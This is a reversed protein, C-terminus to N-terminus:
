CYHLSVRGNGSNSYEGKFTSVDLKYAIKKTVGLGRLSDRVEM